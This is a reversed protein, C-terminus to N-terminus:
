GDTGILDLELALTHRLYGCTPCGEEPRDATHVLTNTLTTYDFGIYCTQSTTPATRTATNQM